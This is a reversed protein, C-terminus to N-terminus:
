KIELFATLKTLDGSTTSYAVFSQLPKLNARVGPPVGGEFGLYNQILQLGDELNVYVLGGTKDPAGAADLAGKYSPDDSLKGGGDRYDTVGTPATTLLVRGDFGAWRVTVPPFGLSKVGVGDQTEEDVQKHLLRGVRNALQDITTLAGQTDPTELAVSFEPIGPGRRVYFAVENSLLELVDDLRMGLEQEAQQFAQGFMPNMRLEALQDGFMGGQFSVFALAGAPVGSILKSAYPAGANVLRGGNVGKIGGDFRIGEDKAELSAGIWELKDLGFPALAGDGAATTQPGGGMAARVFEALQRGNVYAKVLADTPLEALAEKFTADDALSKDAEGKLTQDLMPQSESVVLWDGVVRTAATDPGGESADLKAVLAKAKEISDPKTLWAYSVHSPTAGPGVAIDVEPGLAPKLDREYDLREKVLKQRLQALWEERGPFKKLLKDVKQWQASDLDSDLAVYALAGSRVFSAGSEGSVGTKTTGGCGAVVACALFAILCNLGRTM